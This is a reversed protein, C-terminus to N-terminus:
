ISFLDDLDRYFGRAKMTLAYYKATTSNPNDRVIYGGRLLSDVVKVSFRISKTQKFNYNMFRRVNGMLFRDKGSEICFQKMALLWIMESLKLYRRNEKEIRVQTYLATLSRWIIFDKGFQNAYYRQASKSKRRSHKKLRTRLEEDAIM